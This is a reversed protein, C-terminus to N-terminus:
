LKTALAGLIGAVVARGPDTFDKCEILSEIAMNSVSPHAIYKNMEDIDFGNAKLFENLKDKVKKDMSIDFAIKNFHLKKMNLDSLSQRFQEYTNLMVLVLAFGNKTLKKKQLIKIATDVVTNKNAALQEIKDLNINNDKIFKIIESNIKM